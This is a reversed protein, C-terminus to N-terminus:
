TALEFGATPVLRLLFGLGRPQAKTKRGQLIGEARSSIDTSGCTYSKEVSSNM